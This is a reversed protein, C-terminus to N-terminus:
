HIIEKRPTTAVFDRLYSPELQSFDSVEYRKGYKEALLAISVASVGPQVTIANHNQAEAIIEEKLRIMDSTMRRIEGPDIDYLAFFAENRKADVMSCFKVASGANNKTRFLEAIGDLTPVAFIPVTRAMALGKATSLGIRLGTFSGPGISVAIGDIEQLSRGTEKLMEDVLSLLRESHINKENVSREAVVNTGHVLATSCVETATEIGLIM